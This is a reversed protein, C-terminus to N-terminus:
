EGLLPDMGLGKKWKERAKEYEMLLKRAKFHAREVRRQARHFRRRLRTTGLRGVTGRELAKKWGRLKDADERLLDDDLCLFFQSYGPDGQRGARGVLQDDVRRADHRETGLM